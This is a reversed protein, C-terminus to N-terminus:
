AFDKRERFPVRQSCSDFHSTHIALGDITLVEAALQLDHLEVAVRWDGPREVLLYPRVGAVSLAMGGMPAHDLPLRKGNPTTTWIIPERCDRCPAISQQPGRHGRQPYGSSM